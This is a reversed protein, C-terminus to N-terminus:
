SKNIGYPTYGDTLKKNEDLIMLNSESYALRPHYFHYQIALHKLHRYRCGFQRLRVDLDTDEGVYPSQYREDFGNVALIDAKYLSFNSGLLGRDKKNLRNRIWKSRFYIGNEVYQGEGFIRELLMWPFLLRELLGLKVRKVTLFESVRKSLLVRRGTLVHNKERAQLHEKVFHKHPICDGDTFILYDTEAAVIAKNMILNKQWGNDPHWIHNIHLSSLRIIQQLEAVVKENSGDDAIIIEFDKSSQREYGSLVLRLIDIKNYFTIIVTALYNM